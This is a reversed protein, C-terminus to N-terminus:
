HGAAPAISQAAQSPSSPAANSLYLPLRHDADIRQPQTHLWQVHANSRHRIGAAGM